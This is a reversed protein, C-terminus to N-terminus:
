KEGWNMPLLVQEDDIIIANLIDEINAVDKVHKLMKINNKLQKVSDVGFIVKDVRENLLVFCFCLALLPIKKKKSIEKLALVRSKAKELIGVFRNEQAFPLGQLFVSRVHIEINKSKLVDFYNEFRRDFVSYPLQILDINMNNDLIFDLETPLYLSIGIKEVKGQKKLEQLRNIWQQGHVKLESIDHILYGYISKCGLRKLSGELGKEIFCNEKGKCKPTKSVVKFFNENQKLFQGIINESNGYEYATDLCNINNDKCYDLIKFVEAKNIQGSNNAIGYNLGFQVTGLSLKNLM